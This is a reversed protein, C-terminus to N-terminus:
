KWQVNIKTMSARVKSIFKNGIQQFYIISNSLLHKGGKNLVSLRDASLECVANFLLATKNVSGVLCRTVHSERRISRSTVQQDGPPAATWASSRFVLKKHQASLSNVPGTSLPDM